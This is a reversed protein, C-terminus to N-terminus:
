IGVPAVATTNFTNAVRYSSLAAAERVQDAMYSCNLRGANGSVSALNYKVLASWAVKSPYFTPFQTAPSPITSVGLAGRQIVLIEYTQNAVILQGDADSELNLGVDILKNLKLDIEYRSNGGGPIIIKQSFVIKTYKKLLGCVRPNVGPEDIGMGGETFGVTSPPITLKGLAENDLGKQWIDAFGSDSNRTHKVVLLEVETNITQVNNFEIDLLINKVVFVDTRPVIGNAWHTASNIDGSGTLSQYPNMAFLATCNQYNAYSVGSSTTVQKTGLLTFLGNTGQSGGDSTSFGTHSQQYRWTGRDVKLNKRIKGGMRIVVKRCQSETPVGTVDCLGVVVSTKRKKSYKSKKSKKNKKYKRSKKYTKNSRRAIRTSRGTRRAAMDNHTNESPLTRQTRNSTPTPYTSMTRVIAPTVAAGAVTYGVSEALDIAMGTEAGAAVMGYYALAPISM